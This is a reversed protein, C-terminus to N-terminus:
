QSSNFPQHKNEFFKCNRIFHLKNKIIPSKYCSFAHNIGQEERQKRINEKKQSCNQVFTQVFRYKKDLESPQSYLMRIDAEDVLRFTESNSIKVSTVYPPKKESVSEGNVCEKNVARRQLFYM